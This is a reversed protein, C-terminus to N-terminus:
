CVINAIYYLKVFQKDRNKLIVCTILDGEKRTIASGKNVSLLM